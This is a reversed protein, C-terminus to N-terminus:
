KGQPPPPQRFSILTRGIRVIAGNELRESAGRPLTRDDVVTGNSSYLDALLFGGGPARRVEAHKASAYPDYDVCISAHPDRGLLWPGDGQLIRTRGIRMGHVVVLRPMDADRVAPAGKAADAQTLMVRDPRIDPEATLGGLEGVSEYLQFIRAPVAVFTMGARGEARELRAVLGVDLLQQVHEHATQRAVGLESAMEELSRPELLFALLRVRKEHALAKLDTALAEPKLRESTSLSIM